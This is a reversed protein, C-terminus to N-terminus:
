RTDEHSFHSQPCIFLNNCIVYQITTETINQKRKNQYELFLSYVLSKSM